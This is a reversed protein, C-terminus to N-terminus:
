GHSVKRKRPARARRTRELRDPSVPGIAAELAEITVYVPRSGHCRLAGSDKWRYSTAQSIGILRAAHALTIRNNSNASQNNLSTM